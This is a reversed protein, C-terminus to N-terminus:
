TSPDWHSGQLRDVFRARFIEHESVPIEEHLRFIDKLPMVNEYIFWRKEPPVICAAYATARAKFGILKQAEDVAELGDVYNIAYVLHADNLLAPEDLALLIKPSIVRRIYKGSDIALVAKRLMRPHLLETPPRVSRVPQM